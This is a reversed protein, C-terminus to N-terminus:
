AALAHCRELYEDAKHAEDVLVDLAPIDTDWEILTPVPGFCDLAHQYLQWVADCVPASHTDILIEHDDHRNVTHGALHLERVQTGRLATLYRYPDFRHNRASVYVNNVDVLLGCGTARALAALFESEAFQAGNFKLYSSINEILVQRGLFDQLQDVRRSMHALAEDTYPLPLLDNLFTGGFSGWSLHESVYQPEAWDVLRKLKRLHEADLPDASGLSLGVGHLSLPYLARVRALHELQAGGDAFYNESHAEVWGIAPRDRVIIDHHPARLGIGARVPISGVPMVANHPLATM